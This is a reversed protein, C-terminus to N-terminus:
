EYKSGHFYEMAKLKAEGISTAVVKVFAKGGSISMDYPVIGDFQFDEPIDVQVEFETLNKIRNMVADFETTVILVEM